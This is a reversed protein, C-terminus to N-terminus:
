WAGGLHVRASGPAVRPSVAQRAVRTGYRSVFQICQTVDPVNNEWNHEYEISINGVFKQAKLEDLCGKIDCAGTGFPVDHADPGM